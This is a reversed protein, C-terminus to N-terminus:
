GYLKGQERLLNRVSDLSERPEESRTRALITDYLDEWLDGYRELDIIVAVRRGDQDTVYQIGEVTM